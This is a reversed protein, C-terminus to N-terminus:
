KTSRRRTSERHHDAQRLRSNAEGIAKQLERPPPKGAQDSALLSGQFEKVHRQELRRLCQDLAVEGDRLDGSFSESGLLETLRQHLSEDLSDRL